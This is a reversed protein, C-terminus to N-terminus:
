FIVPQLQYFHPSPRANRPQKHYALFVPSSGSSIQESPHFRSVNEM